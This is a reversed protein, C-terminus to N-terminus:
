LADAEMLDRLTELDNQAQRKVMTALLPQALRFFGGPEADVTQDVRTGSDVPEMVWSMTVPFPVAGKVAFRHDPEYATVESAGELNRGLLKTTSSYTSGVGIPGESTKTVTQMNSSWRPSTTPDGLVAFVEGVPRKITISVEVKVKDV